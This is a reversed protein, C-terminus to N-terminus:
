FEIYNRVYNDIFYKEMEETDLEKKDNRIEDMKDPSFSTLLDKFQKKDCKKAGYKLLKHVMGGTTDNHIKEAIDKTFTTFKYGSDEVVEMTSHLLEGKDASSLNRHVYAIDGLKSHLSPHNELPLFLADDLETSNTAINKKVDYKLLDLTAKVQHVTSNQVIYFFSAVDEMKLAEGNQFRLDLIESLIPAKPMKTNYKSLEQGLRHQQFPTLRQRGNIKAEKLLKLCQEYDTLKKKSEFAACDVAMTNPNIRYEGWGKFNPQKHYNFNNSFVNNISQINM